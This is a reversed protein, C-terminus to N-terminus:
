PRANRPSLDVFIPYLHNGFRGRDAVPHQNAIRGCPVLDGRPALSAPDRAVLFVCRRRQASMRARRLRGSM